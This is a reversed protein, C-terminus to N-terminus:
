FVPPLLFLIGQHWWLRCAFHGSSIVYMLLFIELINTDCHLRFFYEVQLGQQWLVAGKYIRIQTIAYIHPALCKISMKSLWWKQVVSCLKTYLWQHGMWFLYPCIRYLYLCKTQLGYKCSCYQIIWTHIHLCCSEQHIRYSKWCCKQYITCWWLVLFAVCLNNSIVKRPVVLPCFVEPVTTRTNPIENNSIYFDLSDSQRMWFIKEDVIEQWRLHFWTVVYM